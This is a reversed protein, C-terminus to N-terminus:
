QELREIEDVIREKIGPDSCWLLTVKRTMHTPPPVSISAYAICGNKGMAFTMRQYVLEGFGRKLGRRMGLSVREQMFFRLLRSKEIEKKFTGEIEKQWSKPLKEIESVLKPADMIPVRVVYCPQNTGLIRHMATDVNRDNVVPIDFSVTSQDTFLCLFTVYLFNAVKQPFNLSFITLKIGNKLIQWINGRRKRLVRTEIRDFVPFTLFIPIALLLLICIPPINQFASGAYTGLIEAVYSAIKQLTDGIGPLVSVFNIISPISFLDLYVYVLYGLLLGPIFAFVVYLVSIIFWRLGKGGFLLISIIINKVLVLRPNQKKEEFIERWTERLPSEFIRRLSTSYVLYFISFGGFILSLILFKDYGVKAMTEHFSTALNFDVDRTWYSLLSFQLHIFFCFFLPIFFGAIIMKKRKAWFDGYFIEIWGIEKRKKKPMSSDGM